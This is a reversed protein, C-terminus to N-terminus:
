QAPPPLMSQETAFVQAARGEWVVFDHGQQLAAACMTPLKRRVTAYRSWAQYVPQTFEYLKCHTRNPSTGRASRTTAETEDFIRAQPRSGLAQAVYSFTSHHTGLILACHSLAVLDAAALVMQQRSYEPLAPGWSGLADSWASPATGNANQGGSMNTMAASDSAIVVDSPATKLEAIFRDKVEETGTALYILPDSHAGPPLLLQRVCSAFRRVGTDFGRSSITGASRMHVGIACSSIRSDMASRVREQVNPRFSFFFHFLRQFCRCLEVTPCVSGFEFHHKGGDADSASSKQNIQRANPMRHQRLFPNALLAKLFYTEGVLLLTRADDPAALSSANSGCILRLHAALAVDGLAQLNLVSAEETSGDLQWHGRGVQRARPATASRSGEWHLRVAALFSAGDPAPLYRRGASPPDEVFLHRRTLCALIISSLANLLQNGLGNSPRLLLRRPATDYSHSAQFDACQTLWANSGPHGMAGIDSDLILHVPM